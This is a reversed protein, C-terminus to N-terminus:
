FSKMRRSQFLLSAILILIIFIAKISYRAVFISVAIECRCVMDAFNNIELTYTHLGIDAELNHRNIKVVNEQFIARRLMHNNEIMLRDVTVEIERM